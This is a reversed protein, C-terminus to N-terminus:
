EPCPGWFALLLLFDTISVGDGDFDCTDITGWQALM